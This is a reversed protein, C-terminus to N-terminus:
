NKMPVRFSFINILDKGNTKFSIPIEQYNIEIEWISYNIEMHKNLENCLM